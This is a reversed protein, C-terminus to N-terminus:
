NPINFVNIFGFCYFIMYTVFTFFVSCFALCIEIRQFFFVAILLAYVCSYCFGFRCLEWPQMHVQNMMIYISVSNDPISSFVPWNRRRAGFPENRRLM